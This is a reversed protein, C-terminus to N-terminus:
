SSRLCDLVLDGEFTKAFLGGVSENLISHSVSSQLLYHLMAFRIPVADNDRGKLVCEIPLNYQVDLQHLCPDLDVFFNVNHLCEEKVAHCLLHYKRVDEVFFLPPDFNNMMAKITDASPSTALNQLVNQGDNDQALLGGRSREDGINHRCGIDTFLPVYIARSTDVSTAWYCHLHGCSDKTALFQPCTEIITTVTEIEHEYFDTHMYKDIENVFKRQANLLDNIHEELDDYDLEIEREKRLNILNQFLTATKEISLSTSSVIPIM